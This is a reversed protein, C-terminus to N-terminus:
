APPWPRIMSVFPSPFVGGDARLRVRQASATAPLVGRVPVTFRRGAPVTAAGRVQALPCGVFPGCAGLTTRLNLPRPSRVTFSGTVQAGGGPAARVHFSMADLPVVPTERVFLAIRAGGLTWATPALLLDATARSGAAGRRAVRIRLGTIGAANKLSPRWGVIARPRRRFRVSRSAEIRCASGSRCPAASLVLVRDAGTARGVLLLNLELGGRKREVAFQIDSLRV